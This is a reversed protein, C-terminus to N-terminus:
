DTSPVPARTLEDAQRRWRGVLGRRDPALAEMRDATRRIGEADRSKLYMDFLREYAIERPRLEASREFQLAAHAFEGDKGLRRALLDRQGADDRGILTLRELSRETAALDRRAVAQDLVWDREGVLYLHVALSAAALAWVVNRKWTRVEGEDGEDEQARILIKAVPGSRLKWIAGDLIFHHLNVTASVLLALGAAYELRGFNGPAMLLVPLTWVAAGAAAVKVFERAQGNWGSRARAYYSTVWLYQLAHGGATFVFWDPQQNWDLIESGYGIDLARCLAPATFWVTQTFVLLLTPAIASFTVRRWALFAWGVVTAWQALALTPVAIAVLGFDLGLSVFKVASQTYDIGGPDVASGLDAHMVLAITAFSLVFSAHLLRRELSTPAEGRRRLMMMSIGYNQGAYHWPSWTLYISALISGFGPDAVGWVFAVVIGLTAWLAFVVHRRRDVRREYVRVLTAGYHPLSLLLIILASVLPSLEASFGSGQSAAFAAVLLYLLGCGM